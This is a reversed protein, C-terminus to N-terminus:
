KNRLYPNLMISEDKAEAVRNIDNKVLKRESYNKKWLSKINGCAFPVNVNIQMTHFSFFSPPAFSIFKFPIGNYKHIYRNLHKSLHPKNQTCYVGQLTHRCM